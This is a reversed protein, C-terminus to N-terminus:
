LKETVKFNFHHQLGSGKQDEQNTQTKSGVVCRCTLEINNKVSHNSGVGSTRLEFGTMLLSKNRVNIKKSDVTNFLRFYLFLPPSHGM